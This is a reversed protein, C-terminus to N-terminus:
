TYIIRQQREIYLLVYGYIYIFSIFRILVIADSHSPTEDTTELTTMKSINCSFSRAYPTYLICIYMALTSFYQVDVPNHTINNPLRGLHVWFAMRVIKRDGNWKRESKEGKGIAREWKTEQIYNLLCRGNCIYVRLSFFCIYIFLAVADFPFRAFRLIYM